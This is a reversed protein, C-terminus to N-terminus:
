SWAHLTQNWQSNKKTPITIHSDHFTTKTVPNLPEKCCQNEQIPLHLSHPDDEPNLNSSAAPPYSYIFMIKVLGHGQHFGIVVMGENVDLKRDSKLPQRFHM